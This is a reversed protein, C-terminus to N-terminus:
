SIPQLLAEDVGTLIDVCIAEIYAWTAQNKYYTLDAGAEKFMNVLFDEDYYDNFYETIEDEHKDFFKITDAYYIHQQCVGSQCGHRVIEEMTEKDSGYAEKIEDYGRM